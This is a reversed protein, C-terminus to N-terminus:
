SKRLWKLTMCNPLNQIKVEYIRIQESVSMEESYLPNRIKQHAALTNGYSVVDCKFCKYFSFRFMLASHLLKETFYNKYFDTRKFKLSQLPVSSSNTRRIETYLLLIWNQRNRNLLKSIFCLFRRVCSPFIVM